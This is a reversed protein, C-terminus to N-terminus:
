LNLVGVGLYQVKAPQIYQIYKLVHCKHPKMKLIKVHLFLYKHRINRNDHTKYQDVGGGLVYLFQGDFVVYVPRLNEDM